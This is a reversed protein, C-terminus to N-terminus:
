VFLKCHHRVTNVMCPIYHLTSIFDVLCIYIDIVNTIILWNGDNSVHDVISILETVCTKVDNACAKLSNDVFSVSVFIDYNRTSWQRYWNYYDLFGQVSNFFSCAVMICTMIATASANGGFLHWAILLMWASAVTYSHLIENFMIRCICQSKVNACLEFLLLPITITAFVSAYDGPRWLPAFRSVYSRHTIM